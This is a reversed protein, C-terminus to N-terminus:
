TPPKSTNSFLKALEFVDDIRNIRFYNGGLVIKSFAEDSLFM